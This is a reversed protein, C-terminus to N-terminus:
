TIGKRGVCFTWLIAFFLSIFLKKTQFLIFKFWGILSLPPRKDYSAMDM